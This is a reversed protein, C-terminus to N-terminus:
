NDIQNEKMTSFKNLLIIRFEKDNLEYIEREKPHTISSTNTEMLLTMNGMTKM